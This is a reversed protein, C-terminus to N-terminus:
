KWNGNRIMICANAHVKIGYKEAKEIAKDSESGPQMWIEKIGLENCIDITEATVKPPVITIALDPTIDLEKLSKYIKEGLLEGGRISIGKVKYGAELMDKFIKYGYKESNASVGVIAINKKHLDM